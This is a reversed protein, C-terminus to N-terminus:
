FNCKTAATPEKVIKGLLDCNDFDTLEARHGLEDVDNVIIQGDVDPCKDVSSLKCVSHL